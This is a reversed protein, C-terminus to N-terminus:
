SGDAGRRFYGFSPVLYSFDLIFISTDARSSGTTRRPRHPYVTFLTSSAPTYLPPAGPAESKRCLAEVLSKRDM